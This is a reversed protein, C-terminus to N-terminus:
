IAILANSNQLHKAFNSYIETNNLDAILDPSKESIKNIEKTQKFDKFSPNKM